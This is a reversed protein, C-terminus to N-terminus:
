GDLDAIECVRQELQELQGDRPWQVDGSGIGHGPEIEGHQEAAIRCPEFRAVRRGVPRRIYRKVARM